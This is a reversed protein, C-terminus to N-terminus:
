ERVFPPNSNECSFACCLAAEIKLHQSLPLSLLFTIELNSISRWCFCFLHSKGSVGHNGASPATLTTPAAPLQSDLFSHARPQPRRQSEVCGPYGCPITPEPTFVELHAGGSSPTFATSPPPPSTLLATVGLCFGKEWPLQGLMNLPRSGGNRM